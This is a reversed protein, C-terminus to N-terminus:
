EGLFEVLIGDPDRCFAVRKAMTKNYADRPPEVVEGGAARVAEVTADVDGVRFTLHLLGARGAAVDEALLAGTSPGILELMCGGADVFAVEDGQTGPRRDVLRLGLLDVYFAISRDISSVTMGVHAFNIVAM